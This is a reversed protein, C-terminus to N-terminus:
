TEKQKLAGGMRKDWTTWTSWTTTTAGGGPVCLSVLIGRLRFSGLEGRSWVGSLTPLTMHLLTAKQPQLNQIYSYPRILKQPKESIQTVKHPKLQRIKPAKKSKTVFAPIHLHANEPVSVQTQTHAHAHVHAHYRGGM